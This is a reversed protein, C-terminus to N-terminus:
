LDELIERPLSARLRARARHLLVFAHGPNLKLVAAAESIGLGELYTLHVLLRDRPPLSGLAADIRRRREAKDLADGPPAEPAELSAPLTSAPRAARRRRLGERVAMVGLYFALSSRGQFAGLVRERDQWAKVFLDQCLDEIEDNRFRRAGLLRRLFPLCERWLADWAAADGALCLAVRQRDNEWPNM